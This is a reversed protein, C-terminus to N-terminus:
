IDQKHHHMEFMQVNAYVHLLGHVFFSVCILLICIEILYLITKLLIKIIM